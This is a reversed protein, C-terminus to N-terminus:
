PITSNIVAICAEETYPPEGEVIYGCIDESQYVKAIEFICHNRSFEGNLHTIDYCSDIYNSAMAVDFLCKANDAEEDLESCSDSDEFERAFNMFCKKRRELDEIGYCYKVNYNDFALAEFCSNEDTYEGTEVRGKCYTPKEDVLTFEETPNQEVERESIQQQFLEETEDEASHMFSYLVIAAILLLIIVVIPM